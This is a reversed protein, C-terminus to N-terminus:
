SASPKRVPQHRLSGQAVQAAYLLRSSQSDSIAGLLIGQAVCAIFDRINQYGVLPPMAECYARRADFLAPGYPERKASPTKFSRNWADCCRSVASASDASQDLSNGTIAFETELPMTRNGKGPTRSYMKWQASIPSIVQLREPLFRLNNEPRPNTPL